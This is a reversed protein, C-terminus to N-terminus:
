SVQNLLLCVVQYERGRVAWHLPTDGNNDVVNVDIGNHGLLMEVTHLHGRSLAWHLPTEGNNSRENVESGRSLLIEVAQLHNGFVAWHLATWSKYDKVGVEGGAEILIELIRRDAGEGCALLLPPRGLWDIPKNILTPDMKVLSEVGEIDGNRIKQKIDEM